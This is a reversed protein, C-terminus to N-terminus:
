SSGILLSLHVSGSKFEGASDFTGESIALLIKDTNSDLSVETSDEVSGYISNVPWDVRSFSTGDTSGVKLM